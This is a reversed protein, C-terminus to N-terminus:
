KPKPIGLLELTDLKNGQRSVFRPVVVRNQSENMSSEGELDLRELENCVLNFTGIESFSITWTLGAQATGSKTVTADGRMRELFKERLGQEYTALMTTVIAKATTGTVRFVIEVERQSLLRGARDCIFRLQDAKSTNMSTPVPGSGNILEFAHDAAGGVVAQVLLDSNEATLGGLVCLRNEAESLQTEDVDM